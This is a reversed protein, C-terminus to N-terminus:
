QIIHDISCKQLLLIVNDNRSALATTDRRGAGALHKAAVTPVAGDRRIFAPIDVIQGNVALLLSCLVAPREGAHLGVMGECGGEGLVVVGDGRRSAFATADSRCACGVYSVALAQRHGDRRVVAVVGVRHPHVAHKAASDSFVSEAVDSGVMGQRRGEQAVAVGDRGRSAFAAADAHFTDALHKTAVVPATGDRRIFAPIDVIQGNIAFRLRRLATPRERANLGVMGKCGGESLVAVGNGCCSARAAANRRHASGGRGIALVQRHGDRRVLAVM